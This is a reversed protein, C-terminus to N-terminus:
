RSKIYDMRPIRDLTEILRVNAQRTEEDLNASVRLYHPHRLWEAYPTNGRVKNCRKDASLLNAEISPGGQEWLVLHDVTLPKDDAGCYRCRFHDRKWVKWQVHGEIVRASKRVIAKKVTGDGQRATVVTELLDTQRVLAQWDDLNMDFREVTDPHDEGPFVALLNRGEGAYLVGIMGITNGFKLLDLDALKAV